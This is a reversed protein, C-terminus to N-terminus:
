RLRYGHTDSMLSEETQHSFSDSASAYLHSFAGVAIWNGPVAISMMGSSEMMGAMVLYASTTVALFAVPEHRGPQVWDMSVLVLGVYVLGWLLMALVGCQYGIELYANHARIDVRKSLPEGYGIGLIPNKLMTKVARNWLLKRDFFDTDIKRSTKDELFFRSVINQSGLQSKALDTFGGVVDGSFFATLLFGFFLVFILGARNIYGSRVAVYFGLSLLIGVLATRSSYLFTVALASLVIALVLSKAHAPRLCMAGAIGAFAAFAIRGCLANPNWETRTFLVFPFEVCAFITVGTVLASGSMGASRSAVVLFSVVLLVSKIMASPETSLLSSVVVIALGLIASTGILSTGLKSTGKGARGSIWLIFLGAIVVIGSVASSGTVKGAQVSLTLSLLYLAFGIAGRSISLNTGLM